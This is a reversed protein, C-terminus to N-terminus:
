ALIPPKFLSYAYQFERWVFPAVSIRQSFEPLVYELQFELKEPPIQISYYQLTNHKKFPLNMDKQYDEDIVTKDLYHMKFFSYLTTNPDNAKHVIYHEVLLPAKFMQRVEYFSLLYTFILSYILIKRM